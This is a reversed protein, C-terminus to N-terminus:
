DSCAPLKRIRRARGTRWGSWRANASASSRWRAPSTRDSSHRGRSIARRRSHRGRWAGAAARQRNTAAPLSRSDPEDRHPLPLEESSRGVRVDDHHSPAPLVSGAPSRRRSGPRQDRPGSLGVVHGVNSHLLRSVDRRGNAAHRRARLSDPAQALPDLSDMFPFAYSLLRRTM